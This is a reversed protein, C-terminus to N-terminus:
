KKKAPRLIIEKITAPNLEADADAFPHTGKWIIKQESKVVGEMTKGDRATLKLKINEGKKDASLFEIKALKDLPVKLLLTKTQIPLKKLKKFSSGFLGADDIGVELSKLGVTKGDAYVVTVAPETDKKDAAAKEAAAAPLCFILAAVAPAMTRLRM